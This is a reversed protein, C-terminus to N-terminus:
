DFNIKYEKKDELYSFSTVESLGRLIDEISDKLELKGSCSINTHPESIDIKVNFYRSLRLLINEIPEKDFIYIGKHWSTYNEVNVNKVSVYKDNLTYLQNQEIVTSAGEKSKVKLSGTVLVM